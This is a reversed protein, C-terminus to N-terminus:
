AKDEGDDVPLTAKAINFLEDKQQPTLQQFLSLLQKEAASLSSHCPSADLRKMKSETQNSSPCEAPKHQKCHKIDNM